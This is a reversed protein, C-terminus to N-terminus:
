TWVTNTLRPYADLAERVLRILARSIAEWPQMLNLTRVRLPLGALGYDLQHAHDATAYLLMASPEPGPTLKAHSLYTLVQYLHGSILKKTGHHTQYPTAYYKTEIVLREESNTVVVDTRMDPLWSPDGASGPSLGWPIHPASVTLEPLERKLFNRVFAEFLHGMEQENATFPHFRRKGTAPDPLFSREVLRCVNVLFAYRAVNTHLQIPRFAASSLDIDSVEDFRQCHGRLIARLGPDVTPVTLLERMAAKIVRNHAVDLTLQDHECAVRGRPILTRKVSESVLLKGRLVRSEVEVPVYGRDLGQRVLHSVADALVKALLNDVRNGEIASVDVIDRAELRDWAYCLLYYINQVPISM